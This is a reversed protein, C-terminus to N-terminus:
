GRFWVEEDKVMLNANLTPDRRLAGGWDRRLQRLERCARAEMDPTADAGRTALERHEVVANPTWINRYGLAQLRLCLDVDNSAVALTEDPGGSKLYTERRVALCAGTVAVASRRLALAGGPGPDAANRFRYLHKTVGDDDVAIGAHQIRGDPYLLKTGVAGIEPRMAQTVLEGLWHRDIIATDNNMLVLVEGRAAHAGITNLRSWNFPREDRIVQVRPDRTLLNLLELAEPETTGNDLLIVEIARHETGHLIGDVCQRLLNAQDRTPIIISALTNDAATIRPNAHLGTSPNSQPGTAHSLVAAVHHISSAAATLRSALGHRWDHPDGVAADLSESADDTRLLEAAYVAFGGVLNRGAQLEPDWDPKFDPETRCGNADLRDADAYLADIPEAALVGAAIRLADAALHLHPDLLCIHSGDVGPLVAAIAAAPHLGPAVPVATVYPDDIASQPLHQGPPLPVVLQCRADLQPLLTTLCAEFVSRAVGQATVITTIHIQSSRPCGLLAARVRPEVTEIWIPYGSPFPLPRPPPHQLPQATELVTKRLSADLDFAGRRLGRIAILLRWARSCRIGAIAAQLAEIQSRAAALEEPLGDTEDFVVRNNAIQWSLGFEARDQARRAASTM